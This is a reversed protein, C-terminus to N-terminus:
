EAAAALAERAFNRVRAPDKRGPTSEVGSCVDVGVPSLLRVAQGVNEATLGGSLIFPRKLGALAKWDARVGTGWSHDILIEVTPFHSESELETAAVVRRGFSAIQNEHDLGHVQIADIGAPPVERPSGVYVGVGLFPGSLEGLIRQAEQPDIYRPSPRHFNFGLATAGCDLAWRADELTTIGCVKILM